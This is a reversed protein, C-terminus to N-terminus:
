RERYRAPTAEGSVEVKTDLTRILRDGKYLRVTIKHEGPEWFQHSKTWSKEHDQKQASDFAPCDAEETARTGDEWEWEVKPCYYDENGADKIALRFRVTASSRPGVGLMAMAPSPKLEVKPKEAAALLVFLALTVM